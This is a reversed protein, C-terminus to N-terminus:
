LLPTAYDVLEGVLRKAYNVFAPAVVTNENERLWHRPIAREIHEGNLSVLDCRPEDDDEQLPLLTVMMGTQREVAARVAHRAVAEADARDVASVHLVSSRACLGPKESRCRIKLRQTVVDALYAAVGGPLARDLADRQSAAATEYVPEGRENRIGEAVVVVAWGRASVVGDVDAIFREVDFPKEPLYALHPSHGEDLKALVSSAALWGVSRGMTEFISVPQPLTRVDMGLDRVAQATYRAASAFGPCRDTRAIDNDITKPVGIVCLNTKSERAAADIVAAGRMSGNGGILLLTRIDNERLLHVAKQLEAATPCYRTSGLSAGPSHRLRQLENAGIASLNIWDGKLMGQIGFRAGLVQAFQGSRAAEDIVAFLSANLVPTPGGGQVVLLKGLSPGNV